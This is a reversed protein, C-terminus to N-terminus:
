FHDTPGLFHSASRELEDCRDKVNLFFSFLWILQSHHHTYTLYSPCLNSPGPATRRPAATYSALLARYLARAEMQDAPHRLQLSTLTPTDKTNQIHSPSQTETPHLICVAHRCPTFSICTLFYQFIPSFSVRTVNPRIPLSSSGGTSKTVESAFRGTQSGENLM